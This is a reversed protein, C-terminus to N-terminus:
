DRLGVFWGVEPEKQRYADKGMSKIIRCFYKADNETNFDETATPDIEAKRLFRRAKEVM